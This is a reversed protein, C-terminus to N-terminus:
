QVIVLYKRRKIATATLENSKVYRYLAKREQEVFFCGIFPQRYRVM